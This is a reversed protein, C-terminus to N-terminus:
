GYGSWSRNFLWFVGALGVIYPRRRSVYCSGSSVGGRAGRSPTSAVKNISVADKPATACSTGGGSRAVTDASLAM